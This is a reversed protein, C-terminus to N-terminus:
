QILTETYLRYFYLRKQISHDEDTNAHSDRYKKELILYSTDVFVRLLHLCIVHSCSPCSKTIWWIVRDFIM